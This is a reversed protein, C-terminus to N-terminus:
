MSSSNCTGSSASTRRRRKGLLELTWDQELRCGVFLLSQSIFVQRLAKPLPAQWHLAEPM